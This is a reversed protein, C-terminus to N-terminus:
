VGTEPQPEDPAREPGDDPWAMIRKPADMTKLEMRYKWCKGDVRCRQPFPCACFDM